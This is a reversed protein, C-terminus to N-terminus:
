SCFEIKKEIKITHEEKFNDALKCGKGTLDCSIELMEGIFENLKNDWISEEKKVVKCVKSEM